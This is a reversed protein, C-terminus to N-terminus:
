RASERRGTCKQNVSSETNNRKRNDPEEHRLCLAARQFFDLVHPKISWASRCRVFLSANKCGAVSRSCKLHHPVSRSVAVAARSLARFLRYADLVYGLRQAYRDARDVARQVPPRSDVRQGPRTDEVHNLRETVPRINRSSVQFQLPLESDRNMQRAFYGSEKIADCFSDSFGGCRKLRTNFEFESGMPAEALAIYFEEPLSEVFLRISDDKRGAVGLRELWPYAFRRSRM